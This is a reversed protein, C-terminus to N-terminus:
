LKISAIVITSEIHGRGPVPDAGPVPVAGPDAGAYAEGVCSHSRPDSARGAVVVM